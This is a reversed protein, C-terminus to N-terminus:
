RSAGSGRSSAPGERVIRGGPALDLAGGNKSRVAVFGELADRVLLGTDKRNKGKALADYNDGGTAMFNNCAVLYSKLEDLPTGDPLALATIRQLEPRSPDYRYAIGSM